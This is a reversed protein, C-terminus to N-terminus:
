SADHVGLFTLYTQKSEKNVKQVQDGEYPPSIAMIFM